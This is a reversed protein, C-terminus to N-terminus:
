DGTGGNRLLFEMLMLRETEHWAEFRVGSGHEKSHVVKAPLRTFTAESDLHCSLLVFTGEPIEPPLSLGMGDVSIDIGAVVWGEAAAASYSPAEVTVPVADLVIRRSRRTGASAPPHEEVITPASIDRGVIVENLQLREDHRVFRVEFV